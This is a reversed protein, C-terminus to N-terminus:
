RVPMSEETKNRLQSSIPDSIPVIDGTLRTIGEWRGGQKTHFANIRKFASILTEGESGVLYFCFIRTDGDDFKGTRFPLKWTRRSINIPDQPWYTMDGHVSSQSFMWIRMGTPPSRQLSGTITEPPKLTLGDRTIKPSTIKVDYIEKNRALNNIVRPAGRGQVTQSPAEQQRTFWFSVASFIILALAFYLLVQQTTHDPIQGIIPIKGSAGILVLAFGLLGFGVWGREAIIKWLKDSILKDAVPVERDLTLDYELILVAGLRVLSLRSCRAPDDGLPRPRAAARPAATAALLSTGCPVGSNVRLRTEITSASTRPACGSCRNCLSWRRKRRCHPQQEILSEIKEDITM